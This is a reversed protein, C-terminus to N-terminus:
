TGPGKGGFIRELDSRLSPHGRESIPRPSESRVAMASPSEAPTWFKTGERPSFYSTSLARNTNSNAMATRTARGFKAPNSSERRSSQSNLEDMRHGGPAFQPVGAIWTPVPKTLSSRFTEGAIPDLINVYIPRAYTAPTSPPSFNATDLSWRGATRLIHDERNNQARTHAAANSLYSPLRKPKFSGSEKERDTRKDVEKRGLGGANSSQSRHSSEAKANLIRKRSTTPSHEQDHVLFKGERHDVSPMNQLKEKVHYEAECHECLPAEALEIAGSRLSRSELPIAPANLYITKTSSDTESGRGVVRLLDRKRTKITGTFM